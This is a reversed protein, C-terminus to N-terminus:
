AGARGPLFVADRVTVGFSAARIATQGGFAVAGISPRTAAIKVSFCSSPLSECEASSFSASSPRRERTQAAPASRDVHRFEFPQIGCVKTEAKASSDGRTWACASM